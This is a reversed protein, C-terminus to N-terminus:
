WHCRKHGGLARGSPFVRHCISCEHKKTKGNRPATSVYARAPTYEGNNTIVEDEGANEDTKSAFCGKVKKHSARHGGLAQHSNFVKKCAKCEFIGKAKPSEAPSAEMVTNALRVLCRALLIEDDEEGDTDCNSDNLSRKGKRRRDDDDDDTSVLSESGEDSICKGHDLFSKWSSFEKGCNECNRCSKLRNPNTRLQYMSRSNNGP